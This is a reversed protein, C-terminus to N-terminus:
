REINLPNVRVTVTNTNLGGLEYESIIYDIAKRVAKIGDPHKRCLEDIDKYQPDVWLTTSDDFKWNRQAKQGPEDRDPIEIVGKTTRRNIQGYIFTSNGTGCMAYSNPYGLDRLRIADTIGETILAYGMEDVLHLKELGYLTNRRDYYPTRGYLYRDKSTPSYGVLNVVQGRTNFIPFVWRNYFVPKNRDSLVGFSRLHEQYKPVMLSAGSKPVYFVKQAKLTEPSFQRLTALENLAEKDSREFIYDVYDTFREGHERMASLVEDVKQVVVSM